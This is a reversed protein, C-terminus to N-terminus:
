NRFKQHCSSCNQRIDKMLISVRDVDRVDLVKVLIKSSKLIDDLYRSFEAPRDSSALRKFERLEEHLLVTLETVEGVSLGSDVKGGAKQLVSLNDMVEGLRVMSATAPDINERSNLSPLLIRQTPAEYNRVSDWLGSYKQNTGCLQLITMADGKGCAGSMMALLAAASPGRHKGHHCHVFIPKELVLEM